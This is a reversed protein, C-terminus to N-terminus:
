KVGAGEVASVREVGGTVANVRSGKYASPGSSRFYCLGCPTRGLGRGRADHGGEGRTGVLPFFCPCGRRGRTKTRLWGGSIGDRRWRVRGGVM